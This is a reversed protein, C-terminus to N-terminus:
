KTIKVTMSISKEGATATVVVNGAKLPKLTGGKYIKAISTNSVSWTVEQSIGYRWAKYQFTTGLKIEEQYKGWVLKPEKVALTLTHTYTEGGQKVKTVIKCSGIGVGKIKGESTVTAISKNSSSYTVQADESLRLLEQTYTKGKYITKKTVDFQPATLESLFRDIYFDTYVTAKEEVAKKADYDYKELTAYSFSYGSNDFSGTALHSKGDTISLSGKLFYDYQINKGDKYDSTGNVLPDDFTVDVMYWKGNEMQVQNWMHTSSIILQCPIGLRECAMKFAKAYGECVSLKNLFAGAASYIGVKSQSSDYTTNKVLYDHIYKLRSYRTTYKSPINSILNNVTSDLEAQESNYAKLSKYDDSLVPYFVMKTATSGSYFIEYYTTNKGTGLKLWQLEPFDKMLAAIANNIRLSIAYNNSYNKGDFSITFATESPESLKKLLELYIFQEDETLQSGYIYERGEFIYAYSSQEAALITYNQFTNFFLFLIIFFVRFKKRIFIRDSM